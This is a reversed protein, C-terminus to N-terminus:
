KCRRMRRSGQGFHGFFQGSTWIRKSLHYARLELESIRSLSASLLPAISPPLSNLDYRVEERSCIDQTHVINTPHSHCLSLLEQYRLSLLEQYWSM